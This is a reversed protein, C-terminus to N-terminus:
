KSGNLCRCGGKRHRRITGESTKLGEGELLRAIQVHQINPNNLVEIFTTKTEEDMDKLVQGVFCTTHIWKDPNVLLADLKTKISQKADQVSSAGLDQSSSLLSETADGANLSTM